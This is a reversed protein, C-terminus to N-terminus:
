PWMTAVQFAKDSLAAKFLVAAMDGAADTISLAM